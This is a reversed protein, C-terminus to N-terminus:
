KKKSRRLPSFGVQKRIFLWIHQELSVMDLSRVSLLIMLHLKIVVAKDELIMLVISNEKSCEEMSSSQNFSKKLARFQKQFPKKSAQQNKKDLVLYIHLPLTTKFDMIINMTRKYKLHLISLLIRRTLDSMRSLTLYLAREVIILFIM